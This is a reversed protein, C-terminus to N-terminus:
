RWDTVLRAVRRALAALANCLEIDGSEFASNSGFQLCDYATRERGSEIEVAANDILRGPFPQQDEEDMPEDFIPDFVYIVLGSAQVEGVRLRHTAM